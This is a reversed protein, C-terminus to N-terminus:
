YAIMIEVIFVHVACADPCLIVTNEDVVFFSDTESYLKIHYGKGDHLNM